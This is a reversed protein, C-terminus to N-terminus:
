LYITSKNKSFRGAVKNVLIDLKVMIVYNFHKTNETVPHKM